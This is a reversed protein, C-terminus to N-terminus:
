KHGGHEAGLTVTAGLQPTSIGVERGTMGSSHTVGVSLGAGGGASVAPGSLFSRLTEEDPPDCLHDPDRLYGVHAAGGVGAGVGGGGATYVHGYRDITASGAAVVGLGASGSVTYYDPSLSCGDDTAHTPESTAGAALSRCVLEDASARSVLAEGHSEGGSGTSVEDELGFCANKGAGVPMTM